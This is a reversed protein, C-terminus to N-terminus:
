VEIRLRVDVSLFFMKQTYPLNFHFLNNTYTNNKNWEILKDCYCVRLINGRHFIIVSFIFKDKLNHFHEQDYDNDKSNTPKGVMAIENRIVMVGRNYFVLVDPLDKKWEIPQCHCIRHDIRDDVVPHVCPKFQFMIKSRYTINFISIENKLRFLNYVNGNKNSKLNRLYKM